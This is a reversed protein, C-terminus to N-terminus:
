GGYDVKAKLKKGCIPCFSIALGYRHVQTYGKEDTLESWKIVWGYPPSWTFLELHNKKLSEWEECECFDDM